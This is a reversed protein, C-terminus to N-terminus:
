SDHQANGGRNFIARQFSTIFRQSLVLTHYIFFTVLYISYSLFFVTYIRLACAYHTNMLSPIALTHHMTETESVAHFDSKDLKDDNRNGRSFPNLFNRAMKNVTSLIIYQILPTYFYKVYFDKIKRSVEKSEFTMMIDDSSNMKFNNLFHVEFIQFFFFIVFRLRVIKKCRVLTNIKEM